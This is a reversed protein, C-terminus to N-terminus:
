RSSKRIVNKRHEIEKRSPHHNVTGYKEVAFSALANGYALSDIVSEGQQLGYLFGARWADGAGTPDIVKKLTYAPVVYKNSKDRYLLGHEGLTTIVSVGANVVEDETLGTRSLMASIEYDNGVLWKAHLTGERLLEATNWSLTMGPDYLYTLKNEIAQKQFSVFADPHNASLVLVSTGTGNQSIRIHKAHSCAGYYFGWIQNNDIDTIVHGTASYMTTDILVESTDVQHSQLFDLIPQGDKGVSALLKVGSCGVLGLNYAINTATGGFQRELKDVVFSVNLLHLKDPQLHEQFRSPFDMIVDFSMSGTVLIQKM